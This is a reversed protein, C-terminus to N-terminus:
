VNNALVHLRFYSHQVFAENQVCSKVASKTLSTIVCIFMVVSFTTTQRIIVNFQLVHACLEMNLM